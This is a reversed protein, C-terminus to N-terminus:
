TININIQNIKIVNNLYTDIDPNKPTAYLSLTEDVNSSLDLNFDVTLKANGTNYNISGIAKTFIFKGKENVLYLKGDANDIIYCKNNNYILENSQITNPIVPNGFLIDHETTTNPIYVLKKFIKKSDFIRKIYVKDSKLHTLLELDSLGLEFKDLQTENFDLVAQYIDNEIQSNALSTLSHDIKLTISLDVWLYDPQVVKIKAGIVAYDKVYSEIEEQATQTLLLGIKPKICIYVAGYDKFFHKEGGWVNISDINRFKELLLTKYDRETVLRNQRKFNNPINFRLEEISEEDLGGSSNEITIINYDSQNFILSLDGSNLRGPESFYFCGNGNSGTSILYSLSVKNGTEPQKGFVDKGFFVEYHGDSTTTLFFIPNTRTLNFFDTALLFEVRNTSNVNPYLHVTLTDLDINKDEIIFRQSLDNNNVEFEWTRLQGEYVTFEPTTYTYSYIETTQVGDITVQRTNTTYGSTIVPELTQFTRHDAAFNNASFSYGAPFVIPMTEPVQGPDVTLEMRIKARSTKTSKPFYANLKARSLLSERKIASDIFSENLLMKIYYGLYHANYAFINLLANIGSGEFDFDTFPQKPDSKVYSIFNQKIQDFDLGAIPFTQM